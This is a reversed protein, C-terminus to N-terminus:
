SIIHEQFIFHKTLIYKKTTIVVTLNLLPFWLGVPALIVSTILFFIFTDNKIQQM